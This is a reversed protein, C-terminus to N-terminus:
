FSLKFLLGNEEMKEPYVNKIIKDLKQHKYFWILQTSKTLRGIVAVNTELHNLGQDQIKARKYHVKAYKNNENILVPKLEIVLNGNKLIPIKLNLGFSYRSGHYDDLFDQQVKSELALWRAL